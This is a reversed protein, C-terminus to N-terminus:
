SQVRFFDFAAELDEGTSNNNAMLGVHAPTFPPTSTSFVKIWGLGDLSFYFTYTAETRNIRLYAHHVYVKDKFDDASFTQYDSYRQIMVSWAGADRGIAFLWIDTTNPSGAADQLLMLGAKTYNTTGTGLQSITTRTLIDWNGSPIPQYVGSLRTGSVSPKVIKLWSAPSGVSLTHELPQFESWKADLTTGDFEDDFSSPAGPLAAPHSVFAPVVTANPLASSGTTVFPADTAGPGTLFGSM